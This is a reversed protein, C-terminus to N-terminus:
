KKAYYIERFESIAGAADDLRDLYGLSHDGKSMSVVLLEAILLKMRRWARRTEPFWM